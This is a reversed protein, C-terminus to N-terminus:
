LASLRARVEAWPIPNVSGESVNVRRRHLEARWADAISADESGQLSDLLAVVLASRDAEPLLLAQDLLHEVRAKM